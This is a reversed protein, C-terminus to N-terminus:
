IIIDRRVKSSFLCSDTLYFLFTDKSVQKLWVPGKRCILRSEIKKTVTREAFNADIQWQGGAASKDM